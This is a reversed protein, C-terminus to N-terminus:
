GYRVLAFGGLRGVVYSWACLYCTHTQSHPAETVSLSCVCLYTGQAPTQQPSLNHVILQHPLHTQRCRSQFLSPQALSESPWCCGVCYVCLVSLAGHCQPCSCLLIGAYTSWYLPSLRSCVLLSPVLYASTLYCSVPCSLCFYFVHFSFFVPPIFLHCSVLSWILGSSFLCSWPGSAYVIFVAYIVCLLHTNIDSLIKFM